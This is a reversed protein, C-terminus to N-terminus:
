RFDSDNFSHDFDYDDDSYGYGNEFDDMGAFLLHPVPGDFNHVMFAYEDGFSADEDSDVFDPSYM